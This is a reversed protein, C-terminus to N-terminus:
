NHYDVMVIWHGDDEDTLQEATKETCESADFIEVDNFDGKLMKRLIPTIIKADDEEGLDNYSSREFPMGLENKFLKTLKKRLDKSGIKENNMLTDVDLNQIIKMSEQLEKNTKSDEIILKQAEEKVKRYKIPKDLKSLEGSWRGGIVFWDAKGNAWYGEQNAFNHQNLTNQAAQRAEKSTKAIEKDIIVLYASHM